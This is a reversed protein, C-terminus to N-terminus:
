IEKAKIARIEIMWTRIKQRIYKKLNFYQFIFNKKYKLILFWLLNYILIHISALIIQNSFADHDTIYFRKLKSSVTGLPCRDLGYISLVLMNFIPFLFSIHENFKVMTSADDPPYFYNSASILFISLLNGILLSIDNSPHFVNAIIEILLNVGIFYLFWTIFYAVFRQMQFPIGTMFFTITSVIITIIFSRIVM